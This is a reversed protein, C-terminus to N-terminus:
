LFKIEKLFAICEDFHDAYYDMLECRNKINLQNLIKIVLTRCLAMTRNTNTFICRLKDEKLICDRANNATEVQWHRRVAQYLETADGQNQVKKNTLFYAIQKSYANRNCITRERRVKILYKFDAKKWRKDIYEKEINFSWYSRQEVRGHGKEVKSHYSYVPSIQKSCFQMEALLESQNDKLSALFIGGALNIPILTNPKFHLADMTLKQSILPAKLMTRVAAVESEKSGNFFSMEYVAKDEHRVALAVAEGRKDGALISGKLEKGDFAFWKKEEESLEIGYQKYILKALATGNVKGLLIPM